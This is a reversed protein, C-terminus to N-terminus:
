LTWPMWGTVFLLLGFLPFLPIFAWMILWFGGLVGYVIIAIIGFLIMFSRITAGIIRSILRDFFAHLQMNLSGNVKGASIQRFPSFLTGALLDISFYDIVGLLREKVMRVRQKWGTGYWWGLIGVIFMDENYCKGALEM